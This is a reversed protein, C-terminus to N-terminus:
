IKKAFMFNMNLDTLIFIVSDEDYDMQVEVNNEAAADVICTLCVGDETFAQNIEDVTNILPNLNISSEFNFNSEKYEAEENSFTVEWDAEAQIDDEITLEIEFDGYNITYDNSEEECIDINNKIQNKLETQYTEKSFKSDLYAVQQSNYTPNTTGAQANLITIGNETLETLCDKIIDKEDDIATRETIVVATQTSFAGFFYLGLVVGIVIIIGIIIFVTAQGRKNM